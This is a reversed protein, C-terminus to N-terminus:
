TVLGLGGNCACGIHKSVWMCVSVCNCVCAGM